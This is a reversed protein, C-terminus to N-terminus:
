MSTTRANNQAKAAGHKDWHKSVVLLQKCGMLSAARPFIGVMAKQSVSEGIRYTSIPIGAFLLPFCLM